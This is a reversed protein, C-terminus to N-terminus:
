HGHRGHELAEALYPEGLPLLSRSQLQWLFLAIWVGGLALPTVVDLWTVGFTNEHHMPGINWFLDVIRMLIVTIAVGILTGGNKKIDSSLLLVFPLAFHGFIIVLGVWQWGGGMRKLYWPIEEPLNASWIILFQSFSFYAWLMVFALMLKGLDHLHAPAIVRSMPETRSLLIVVAISFALASLGQGGMFLIGFMTSYWHPDLSMIWDVSMFLITAAYIVLGAGSLRQMKLAHGREGDREQELSWKSLTLALGSWVLFYIAARVLFFPVNLYPAKRQLIIDRAVADADTWLYLEHMGFVIPLFLVAMFPLTRSAAELVRRIVVGWAGGSLHHVMSLALSGLAIGVWFIFALLYSKFFHDRNAAFGVACLALGALGIVMALRQVSAVRPPATYASEIMDIRTAPRRRPPGGIM